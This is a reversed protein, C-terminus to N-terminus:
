RRSTAAASQRDRPAGAVPSQRHGRPPSPRYPAARPCGTRRSSSTRSRRAHCRRARCPCHRGSEAPRALIPAHTDLDSVRELLEDGVAEGALDAALRHRRVESSPSYPCPNFAPASVIACRSASARFVVMGPTARAGLRRPSRGSRAAKRDAEDYKQQDPNQMLRGHRRRRRRVHPPPGHLPHDLPTPGNPPPKPPPKPPPQPPPDDPPNPPPKPPKPPPRLPPPPPPADHHRERLLLLLRSASWPCEVRM